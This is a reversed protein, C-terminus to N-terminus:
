DCAEIQDGRLSADAMESLGLSPTVGDFCEDIPGETSCIGFLCPEILTADGGDYRWLAHSASAGLTSTYIWYEFENAVPFHVLLPQLEQPVTTHIKWGFNWYWGDIMQDGTQHWAAFEDGTLLVLCNLYPGFIKRAALLGVVDSHLIAVHSENFPSYPKFGRMKQKYLRLRCRDKASLESRSPIPNKRRSEAAFERLRPLSRSKAANIEDLTHIIFRPM